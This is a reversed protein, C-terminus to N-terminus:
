FVVKLGFQILRADKVSTLQGFSPSTPDSVPNNFQAHNFVNFMEARFDVRLSERIPIAKIVSFDLNNTPPGTLSNRSVDGFTGAPAAEFASTNFWEKVSGGGSISGNGPGVLNARQVGGGFTGTNSADVGNIAVSFPTGTSYTYIGNVQWGGIVRDTLNSVGSAYLQGRGFPLWWNATMSLRHKQNFDSPGYEAPIDHANQMVDGTSSQIDLSRSYTYAALLFLNRTARKQV